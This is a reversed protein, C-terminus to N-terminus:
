CNGLCSPGPNPNPIRGNTWARRKEDADFKRQQQTTLVTRIKEQSAEFLSAWEERKDKSSMFKDGSATQQDDQEALLISQVEPQQAATLKYRKRLHTFRKEFNKTLAASSPTNVSSSPPTEALKTQPFVPQAMLLGAVIQVAVARACNRCILVQM